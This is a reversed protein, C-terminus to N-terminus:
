AERHKWNLYRCLGELDPFLTRASIGHRDLSSLIEKRRKEPIRFEHLSNRTKAMRELPVFYSAKSYSYRHLTFWGQQATIRPNNFRPQFVKTERLTAAEPGYPDEELHADAELAYVFVDGKARDDCAFWLAVLPNTTWDLLRTELGFHQALVLLDLPSQEAAPLMAAGLLKLQQIVVMERALPNKTPDSRAISPLLNGETAQGRFVVLNVVLDFSDTHGIFDVFSKITIQRM